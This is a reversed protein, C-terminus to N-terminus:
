NLKAHRQIRLRFSGKFILQFHILQIKLEFHEVQVKM